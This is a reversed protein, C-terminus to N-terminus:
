LLGERAPVFARQVSQQVGSVAQDIATEHLGRLESALEAKQARLSELLEKRMEERFRLEDIKIFAKDLTIWTVGGAVLACLPALPGCVAAGGAAAVLTSGARKTAVRGLLSAAGQFVPKSAARTTAATAARRALLGAASAVSAGGLAATTARVADREINGLAVPNIEGLLCPKSKVSSKMQAGLGMAAKSIRAQSEAAIERSAQELRKSFAEGFVRRELEERMSEAFRGALMEGLREYEGVVTFYWDLYGDVGNEAQAFLADIAANASASARSQEQVRVKQLQSDLGGKLAALANPDTRCPNAWVIAQRGRAPLSSTDFDRMACAVVACLVFVVTMTVVFVRSSEAPAEPQLGRRDLLAVLGLHLRTLTFAIVGPQLLFLAWAVWKLGQNPLSPILVEAAHWALANLTALGGVLGGAVPCTANGNVVLFAKEAVENWALERTDPAGVVYFDIAFFALCLIAINIWALPWRRAALGSQEARVDRALWKTIPRILLALVVADVALVLWQGPNLLSAFALLLTAWFIATFVQLLRLVQGAWFWRRIRNEERTLRALIARREFLAYERQYLWIPWTILAVVFFLAWCPAKLIGLSFAYLIATAALMLAVHTVTRHRDRKTLIDMTASKRFFLMKAATIETAYFFWPIEALVGLALVASVLTRM